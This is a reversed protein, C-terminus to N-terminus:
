AACFQRTVNKQLRRGSHARRGDITTVGTPRSYTWAGFRSFSSVQSICGHIWACPLATGEGPPLDPHPCADESRLPGIGGNGSLECWNAGLRAVKFSRVAIESLRHSQM